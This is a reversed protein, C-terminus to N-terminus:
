APRFRADPALGPAAEVLKREHLDILHAFINREAAPRLAPDLGSYVAAALDSVHSGGAGAGDLAARIQSEREARHAILWDLRAAAAEVPAGHGPYLRRPARDRLRACSALFAGLDGDPPSVLSSAWGMALDGSFVAGRWAFSLHSGSHGPTWLAEVAGGEAALRAGDALLADPTFDHDLGEGGGAVGEDALRRMTASRGALAGGFALVPAGTAGALAPALGSHDRHAHTVLIRELRAGGLAALLAGLHRPDAPGPDILTVAAEGLLYSNTGPGTMPSPNPALVRRLGPELEVAVGPRIDQQM